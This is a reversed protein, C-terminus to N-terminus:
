NLTTWNGGSGVNGHKVRYVIKGILTSGTSYTICGFQFIVAGSDTQISFGEIRTSKENYKTGNVYLDDSNTYSLMMPQFTNFINGLPFSKETLIENYPSSELLKMNLYPTYSTPITNAELQINKNLESILGNFRIYCSENPVTILGELLKISSVFQKDKDYFCIGTGSTKGSSSLYLYEIGEINIFNSTYWSTKSLMEGTVPNIEMNLYVDKKNFLNRSVVNETTIVDEVQEWGSPVETGDYDVETGIPLTDSAKVTIDKFEGTDPDRYKM